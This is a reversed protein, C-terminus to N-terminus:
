KRAFPSLNIFFKKLSDADDFERFINELLEEQRGQGLTLRYLSLVKILREYQAEDRSIPYHGLIREIKVEQDECCWYPILDSKSPDKSRHAIDFLQEWIDGGQEFSIKDGYKKVLNQRIALCKFRNIRGERQELDIPNTPLNWHMIKRCYQHFDLGEQGISTSALVFPWFPSNFTKRIDDKRAVVKESEAGSNAFGVAYHTRITSIKDVDEKVRKEFEPYSDIEYNATNLSLADVFSSCVFDNEKSVGSILHLYEDVMAQFNGNKCYLLVNQWHNNDDLRKTNSLEVIATKETSNFYRYFGLAVKVSIEINNAARYLCTAPGGLAMDVLKECLDDPMKGLSNVGYIIKDLQKDLNYGNGKAVDCFCKKHYDGDIMMPAVWYWRSDDRNSVAPYKERLKGLEVNIKESLQKELKELKQLGNSFDPKYLDALFKSPYLLTFITDQSFSLRESPYRNKAFYDTERENSRLLRGITRREEDYSILSGIMRPVMEWSSFVLIKSFNDTECGRYVGGFEYYPMSPPIWLFFAPNGVIEQSTKSKFIENRLRELRANTVDLAKYNKIKSKDVWLLNHKGKAIEVEEPHSKFCEEVKKKLDYKQAFSLIYPCSKIYDMLFKADIRKEDPNKYLVELIDLYSNIDNESIKLSNNKSSDDIYDKSDMVSIRETRCMCGYLKEGAKEVNNQLALISANENKLEKLSKSYDKWVTQFEEFKVSDDYLFTVVEKFENFHDDDNTDGIEDLTSYLKYPTASLLLVRIKDALNNKDKPSLFKKALMAVESSEDDPNILFKFRQFEDMIVLDPNLMEISIKAFKQRIFGVFASNNRFGNGALLYDYILPMFDEDSLISEHLESKWPFVVEVDNRWDKFCYDWTDRGRGNMIKHLRIKITRREENITSDNDIIQDIVATLLMREWITGMGGRQKFSTEPTLTLLQVFHGKQKIEEDRLKIAYFQMSLRWNSYSDTSNGFINLKSLNQRAISQNSCVYVVKFLDDGEEKRLKAMKAITGKAILTKGMGVEDAVLVRDQGTRFLHDIREVTAKQFDKLGNMVDTEKDIIQQIDM